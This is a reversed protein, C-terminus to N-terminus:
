RSYVAVLWEPHVMLTMLIWWEGCVSLSELERAPRNLLLELALLVMEDHVAVLAAPGNADPQDM